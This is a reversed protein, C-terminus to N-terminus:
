SIDKPIITKCFNKVDNEGVAFEMSFVEENHGDNIKITLKDGSKVAVLDESAEVDSGKLVFNIQENNEPNLHGSAELNNNNNRIVARYSGTETGIIKAFHKSNLHVLFYKAFIEPSQHQLMAAQLDVEVDTSGALIESKELFHPPFRFVKKNKIDVMQFVLIDQSALTGVPSCDIEAECNQLQLSSLVKQMLRGTRINRIQLMTEEPLSCKVPNAGKKLKFTIKLQKSLISDESEVHEELHTKAMRWIMDKKILDLKEAALKYEPNIELAKQYESIAMESKGALHYFNGLKTHLDPFTPNTNAFREHLDIVSDLKRLYASLEAIKPRIGPYQPYLSEAKLYAKYALYLRGTKYFIEGLSFFIRPNKSEIFLLTEIARETKGLNALCSALNIKAELYNPNEKLATQFEVLAEEYRNNKALIKGFDNRLDLHTPNSNIKQQVSALAKSLRKEDNTLYALYGMAVHQNEDLSVARQFAEL